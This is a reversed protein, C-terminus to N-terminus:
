PTPASMERGPREQVSCGSSRYVKPARPKKFLASRNFGAVVLHLESRAVARTEATKRKPQMQQESTHAQEDTGGM